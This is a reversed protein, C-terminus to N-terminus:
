EKTDESKAQHRSSRVIALAEFFLCPIETMTAPLTLGMEGDLMSLTELLYASLPSVLNHPCLESREALFKVFHDPKVNARGTLKEAKKAREGEFKEYCLFLGEFDQPAGLQKRLVPKFVHPSGLTVGKECQSCV